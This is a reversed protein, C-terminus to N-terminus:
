FFQIFVLFSWTTYCSFLSKELDFTNEQDASIAISFLLKLVIALCENGEAGDDQPMLM